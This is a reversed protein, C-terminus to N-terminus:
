VSVSALRVASAVAEPLKETVAEVTAPPVLVTAPVAVSASVAGVSANVPMESAPSSLVVMVKESREASCPTVKLPVLLAPVTLIVKDSPVGSVLTM